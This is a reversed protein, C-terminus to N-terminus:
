PPPTEQPGTDQLRRAHQPVAMSTGGMRAVTGELHGVSRIGALSRSEEGPALADVAPAQARWGARAPGRGSYGMARTDDGKDVAAVERALCAGVVTVQPGGCALGSISGLHAPASAQLDGGPAHAVWLRGQRGSPRAGDGPWVRALYAHVRM